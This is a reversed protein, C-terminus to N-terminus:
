DGYYKFAEKLVNIVSAVEEDKLAPYIPLSVANDWVFDTGCFGNKNKISLYRNLPKYVPRDCIVRQKQTFSIIENAKSACVIFRYYSPDTEILAQQFKVPLACLSRKYEEAIARRRKIFFDLKKLQSLALGATLDSMKYNYRVTYSDRMDLNNLDRIVEAIKRDNTFILGGEGAALMKTAYMSLISVAGFTGAYRNKYTAGIAHTCNEIVPIGFKLISDIDAPFGFTHTVIIARTKETINREIIDPAPNFTEEDIDTIVPTANVYNVANSVATCTYAPLIVEDGEKINLALLALHLATTGSSTAYSYRVNFNRCFENQLEEVFRGRAIQGTELVQTIYDFDTKELFPRSQHITNQLM